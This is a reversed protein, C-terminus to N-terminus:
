KLVNDPSNRLSRMSEVLLWPLFLPHKNQNPLPNEIQGPFGGPDFYPEKEM